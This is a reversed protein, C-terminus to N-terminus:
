MKKGMRREARKMAQLEQLGSLKCFSMSQATMEFELFLSAHNDLVLPGLPLVNTCKSRPKMLLHWKDGEKEVSIFAM